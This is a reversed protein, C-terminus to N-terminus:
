GQPREREAARAKLAHAVQESNLRLLTETEPAVANAVVKRIRALRTRWASAPISASPETMSAANGM